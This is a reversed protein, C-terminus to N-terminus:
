HGEVSSLISAPLFFREFLMVNFWFVGDLGLVLSDHLYFLWTLLGHALPVLWMDGVFVERIPKNSMRNIYSVAKTYIKSLFFVNGVGIVQFCHLLLIEKVSVLSGRIRLHALNSM